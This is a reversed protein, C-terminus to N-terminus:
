RDAPPGLLVPQRHHDGASHRAGCEEALLRFHRSYRRFDILVVCSNKTSDLLVDAYAGDLGDAFSTRPKVHQLLSAFGIGLFRGHHFSAVSVRDAEVLLYGRHVEM